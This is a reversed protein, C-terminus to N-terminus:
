VIPPGRKITREVYDVVLPGFIMEGIYHDELADRAREPSVGILTCLAFIKDILARNSETLTVTDRVSRYRPHTRLEKTGNLFAAIESDPVPEDRSIEKHHVKVKGVVIDRMFEAVCRSRMPGPLAIDDLIRRHTDTLARLVTTYRPDDCLDVTRYKIEDIEEQQRRKTRSLEDGIAIEPRDEKRGSLKIYFKNIYFKDSEAM